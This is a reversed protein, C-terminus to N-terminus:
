RAEEAAATSMLWSSCTHFPTLKLTFPHSPPTLTLSHVHMFTPTHTQANPNLSARTSPRAHAEARWKRVRQSVRLSAHKCVRMCVHVCTSWSREVRSSVLAPLVLPAPPGEEEDKKM